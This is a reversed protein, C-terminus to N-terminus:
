WKGTKKIASKVESQEKISWLPKSNRLTKSLMIKKMETEM